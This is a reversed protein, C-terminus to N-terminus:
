QWFGNLHTYVIHATSWKSDNDPLSDIYKRIANVDGASIVIPDNEKYHIICKNNEVLTYVNNARFIREAEAAAAKREAEAVAEEAAKKAAEEAEKAKRAAKAAKEAAAVAAERAAEEAEKAKRAAKKKAAEEADKAAKEAQKAAEEAAKKKERERRKKEKEAEILRNKADEDLKTDKISQIFKKFKPCEDQFKVKTTCPTPLKSYDDDTNPICNAIAYIGNYDNHPQNKGIFKYYPMAEIYRGNLGIHIRSTEMNKRGYFPFSNKLDFKTNGGVTLHYETYTYKGGDIPVEFNYTITARDAEVEDDLCEEFTKWKNKNSNETLKKDDKIITVEFECEDLHTRSYRTLIIERIAALLSEATNGHDKLISIDFHVEWETGSPMLTTEDLEDELDNTEEGKFPAELYRLSSTVGKNDKTRWTVKWKATTYDPGFKTLCKKSGHGYRHQISVSNKSTWDKLRKTSKIGTGNDTVTLICDSPNTINFKTIIKTAKGQGRAGDLLEPYVLLAEPFEDSYMVAENASARWLAHYQDNGFSSM